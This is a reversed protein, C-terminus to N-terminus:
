QIAFGPNHLQRRLHRYAVKTIGRRTQSRRASMVGSINGLLVLEPNQAVRGDSIARNTLLEGLTTTMQGYQQAFNNQNGRNIFAHDSSLITRSALRPYHDNIVYRM